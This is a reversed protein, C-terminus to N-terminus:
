PEAGGDEYVSDNASDPGSALGEDRGTAQWGVALLPELPDQGFRSIKTVRRDYEFRGERLQRVAAQATTEADAFDDDDWEALMFECDDAKKPLSVYGLRVAGSDVVRQSVLPRANGDVIGPLIRRYLPLQLDIWHRDNKPGRRHSKDPTAVSNGTKYDLVAWEGQASNHDIRDIRGRLFFPTGDVEFPVGDGEPQCEVAAIKWGQAAWTAQKQAFARLRTKLQEAQLEVAPMANVGFHRSVEEDLLRVLTKAIESEDAVDVQPPSHLALVGFAHLVKHALSGFGMPELERATDDISELRYVKELVFRYPDALLAKFATVALSTPVDEFPLEIVPEPPASFQSQDGPQFGLSELSTDRPAAEDRTLFHLVRPAMQEEPVRFMLRSPRLPDGQTARRGAILRIFKKSHLVTTLRYADRAMRQRNDPLGLSTRLADPLFAHGTVSAPLFGENFATLIAVPADDLPLELWDLLEVADRGPDPPLAEERLELLLARIAGSGTGEEDLATPLEALAAAVAQIHLLADLLRRHAPRSRDLDLPGYSEVLVDMVVPMWHSLPKRGGIRSLPGEREVAHVFPPFHAAARQGEPIKGQLRLPLHDTFYEDAAEIAKSGESAAATASTLAGADPHRLLDALAQFSHADLYDAMAQLLRVPRTRSLPTGAAYRAHVDRARLRQELYPVVESEAHVALVVEEASYSGGLEALAAIAADAQDVPREVVKLVQDTVPVETTEWHDTQPLGFADFVTGADVGGNLKAPAHILARVKAGSAQVLRRTVAPLDVISVLWLDGTFPDVESELAAMRVEFPDALDAHGLLDLYSQQVRALAEWRAGDDFHTSSRFIKVVDAFRHGEGALNQHLGALLSALEDWEALNDGEPLHPFVNALVEGDVSRLARCWAQHSTASDALAIPSSVPLGPLTGVTVAAPPILTLSRIEAEDLLLEVIRRRARKGPLVLTALRLDAVTGDAYHEVLHAAAAPLAPQDWGLFIRSVTPGGTVRPTRRHEASAM